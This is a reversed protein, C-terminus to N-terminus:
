VVVRSTVMLQGAGINAAHGIITNLDGQGRVKVRLVFFGSDENRLRM